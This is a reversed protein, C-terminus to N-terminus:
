LARNRRPKAPAAKKKVPKEGRVDAIINDIDKSKIGVPGLAKIQKMFEKGEPSAKIRDNSLNGDGRDIFMQKLSALGQRYLVQDRENTIFDREYADPDQGYSEGGIRGTDPFFAKAQDESFGFNSMAKERFGEIQDQTLNKYKDKDFIGSDKGKRGPLGFTEIFKKEGEANGKFFDKFNKKAVAPKEFSIGGGLKSGIEDSVAGDTMKKDVLPGLDENGRLRNLNQSAFVWNDPSDFGGQTLSKIHELDLDLISRMGEHPAYANVGGQKLYTRIIERTRNETAQDKQASTLKSLDYVGDAIKAGEAEPGLDGGYSGHGRADAAGISKMANQLLKSYKGKSKKSTQGFRDIFEDLAEDSVEHTFALDQVKDSQQGDLAKRMKRAYDKVDPTLYARDKAAKEGPESMMEIDRRTPQFNLTDEANSRQVIQNILGENDKRDPDIIGGIITDIEETGIKKSKKLQLGSPQYGHKLEGTDGMMKDGVKIPDRVTPAQAAQIVKDFEQDAATIRDKGALDAKAMRAATDTRKPLSKGEDPDAELKEGRDSQTGLVDKGLESVRDAYQNPNAADRKVTKTGRGPGKYGLGKLVEDAASALEPNKRAADVQGSTVARSMRDATDPVQVTKSKNRDMQQLREVKGVDGPKRVNKKAVTDQTRTLQQQGVRELLDKFNM